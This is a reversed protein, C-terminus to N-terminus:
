HFAFSLFHKSVFDHTHTRTHEQLTPRILPVLAAAHLLLGLDVFGAVAAGGVPTILYHSLGKAM